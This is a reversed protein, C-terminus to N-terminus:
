LLAMNDRHIVEEYHARGFIKSIEASRRGQINRLDHSAYASLGRAILLREGNRVDVAAGAPFEGEVATIGIPLLSRRQNIIARAAGEDILLAGQPKHFFAIWRKRHSLG